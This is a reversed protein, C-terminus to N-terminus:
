YVNVEGTQKLASSAVQSAPIGYESTLPLAGELMSAVADYYRVALSVKEAGYELIGECGFVEMERNGRMVFVPIRAFFEGDAGSAGEAKQWVTRGAAARRMKRM